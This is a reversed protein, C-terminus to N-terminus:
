TVNMSTCITARNRSRLEFLKRRGHSYRHCSETVCPGGVIRVEAIISLRDRREPLPWPRALTITGRM